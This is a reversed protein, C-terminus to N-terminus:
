FTTGVRFGIQYNTRGTNDVSGSGSLSFTSNEPMNLYRALQADVKLTYNGNNDATGTVNLKTGEPLNFIKALDANLTLTGSVSGDENAKLDVGATVNNGLRVGNITVGATGQNILTNINGRARVELGAVNSDIEASIQSGTSNVGVRTQGNQHEYSTTLEGQSNSGISTRSGNGAADRQDITVQSSGGAGTQPNVSVQAAVQGREIRARVQRDSAAIEAKTGNSDIKYSGSIKGESDLEIVTQSNDKSNTATLKVGGNATSEIKVDGFTVSPQTPNAASSAAQDSLGNSILSYIQNKQEDTLKVTGQDTKEARNLIGEVKRYVDSAWNQEATNVPLTVSTPQTNNSGKLSQNLNTTSQIPELTQYNNNVGSITSM